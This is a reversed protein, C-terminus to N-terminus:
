ALSYIVMRYQSLDIKAKNAGWRMLEWGLCAGLLTLLPGTRKPAM